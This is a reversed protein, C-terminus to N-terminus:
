PRAQGHIQNEKKRNIFHQACGSAQGIYHIIGAVANNVYVSKWIVRVCDVIKIRCFKNINIKLLLTQLEPM